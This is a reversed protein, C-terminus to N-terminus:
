IRRMLLVVVIVLLVILVLGGASIAVTDAIVHGMSVHGRGLVACRRRM